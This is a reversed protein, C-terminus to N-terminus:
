ASCKRMAVAFLTRTTAYLFGSPGDFVFVFGFCFLFVPQGDAHQAMGEWGATEAPLAAKLLM